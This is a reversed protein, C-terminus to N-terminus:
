LYKFIFIKYLNINFIFYNGTVFEFDYKLVRLFQWDVSFYRIQIFIKRVPVVMNKLDLILLGAPLCIELKLSEICGVM